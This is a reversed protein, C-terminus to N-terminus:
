CSKMQNRVVDMDDSFKKNIVKYQDPDTIVSTLGSFMDNQIEKVLEVVKLSINYSFYFMLFLFVGLSITCSFLTMQSSVYMISLFMCFFLISIMEVFLMVTVGTKNLTKGMNEMVKNSQAIVGQGLAYIGNVSLPCDPKIIEPMSKMESNGSLFNNYSTSGPVFINNALDTLIDVKGNDTTM